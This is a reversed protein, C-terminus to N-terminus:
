VQRLAATKIIEVANKLDTESHALSVTLRLRATGKPVTPPRVATALIGNELLEASIAMAEDNDGIHIPIIQSEFSALTFGADMLMQHFKQARSLLIGGPSKERIIKIAKIAAAVSAPPLGTSYIFSRAKNILLQRIENSCAVFGGYSGLSKSMTGSILDVHESLGLKQVIGGGNGFIGIAHAEDIFLLCNYKGALTVLEELPAIDGDMSFISDSVILRTNQSKNDQLLKELHSIDKHRYRCCRAGSLRVGDILSAHNLKDAFILSNKDTLATIVGINTLFGSGFVLASEKSLLGAMAEELEEHIELHGSMLRSATAGCGYKETAAQAARIVEHNKALDLYDNSSFNFLTRGDLCIKGGAGPLSRLSRELGENKILDLQKIIDM